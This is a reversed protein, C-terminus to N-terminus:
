EWQLTDKKFEISIMKDRPMRTRVKRAHKYYAKKITAGDANTSVELLDYYERDKVKREEVSSTGGVTSSSASHLQPQDADLDNYEDEILYFCWQKTEANWVKGAARAENAEKMEQRKREVGSHVSQVLRGLLGSSRKSSNEQAM